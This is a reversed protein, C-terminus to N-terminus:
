AGQYSHMKGCFHCSPLNLCSGMVNNCAMLHLAADLPQVALWALHLAQGSHQLQRLDNLPEQIHNDRLLNAM